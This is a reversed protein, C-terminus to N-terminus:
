PSLSYNNIQYVSLSVKVDLSFMIKLERASDDSLMVMKMGCIEFQAQHLVGLVHIFSAVCSADDASRSLLAPFLLIAMREKLPSSCRLLPSSINRHKLSEDPLLLNSFVDRSLLKIQLPFISFSVVFIVLFHVFLFGM